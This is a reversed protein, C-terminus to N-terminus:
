QGYLFASQFNIFTFEDFSSMSFLNHTVKILTSIRHIFRLDDNTDSDLSNFDSKTEPSLDVDDYMDQEMESSRQQQLNDEQNSHISM